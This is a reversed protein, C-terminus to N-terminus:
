NLRDSPTLSYYVCWDGLEINELSKSSRGEVPFAVSLGFCLRSVKLNGYSPVRDPLDNFVIDRIIDQDGVTSTAVYAACLSRDYSRLFFPKEFGM